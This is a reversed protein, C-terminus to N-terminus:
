HSGPDPQDPRTVEEHVTLFEVRIASIDDREASLQTRDDPTQDISFHTLEWRSDSQTISM